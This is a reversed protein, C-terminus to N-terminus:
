VVTGEAVGVLYERDLGEDETCWQAKESRELMIRQPQPMAILVAVRVSVEVGTNLVDGVNTKSTSNLSAESAFISTSPVPVPASTSSVLGPSLPPPCLTGRTVLDRLADTALQTKTLPTASRGMIYPNPRQPRTPKITPAAIHPTTLTQVSLPQTADLILDHPALILQLYM